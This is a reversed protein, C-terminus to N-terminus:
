FNAQFFSWSFDWSAPRLRTMKPFGLYSGTYLRLGEKLIVSASTLASAVSLFYSSAVSSFYSSALAPSKTSFNLSQSASALAPKKGM